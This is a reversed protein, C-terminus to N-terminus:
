WKLPDPGDWSGMKLIKLAKTIEPVSVRRFSGGSTITQQNSSVLNELTEIKSTKELRWQEEIKWPKPAGLHGCATSQPVHEIIKKVVRHFRSFATRAATEARHLLMQLSEFDAISRTKPPATELDANIITIKWISRIKHLKSTDMKLAKAVLRQVSYCVAVNNVFIICFTSCPDHALNSRPGQHGQLLSWFVWTELGLPDSVGLTGRSARRHIYKCLYKFM